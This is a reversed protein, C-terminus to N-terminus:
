KASAWDNQFKVCHVVTGSGHETCFILVIPYDLILNCTFSIECSKPKLYTEYEFKANVILLIMSAKLCNYNEVCQPQFLIAVM